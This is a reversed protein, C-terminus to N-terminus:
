SMCNELTNNNRLIRPAAVLRQHVCMELRTVVEFLPAKANEPEANELELANTTNDRSTGLRSRRNLIRALPSLEETNWTRTRAPCYTKRITCTQIHEKVNTHEYVSLADCLLPM